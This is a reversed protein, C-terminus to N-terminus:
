GYPNGLIDIAGTESLLWPYAKNFSLGDSTYAWSGAGTEGLYDWAAWMFDGVLYPLEKVMKWNRVIDRSHRVVWWLVTPIYNQRWQIVDRLM